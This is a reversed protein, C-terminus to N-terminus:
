IKLLLFQHLNNTRNTLTKMKALFLISEYKENKENDKNANIEINSFIENIYKEYVSIEWNKESKNILQKLYYRITGPMDKNKENNNIEKLLDIYKNIENEFLLLEDQRIKEKQCIVCTAFKNLLNIICYLYLYKEQKKNKFIEESNYQNFKNILHNLCQLGVKKSVMQANILEGIFNIDSVIDNINELCTKIKKFNTKCLKM